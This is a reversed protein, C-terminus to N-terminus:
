KTEPHTKQDFKKIANVISKAIKKQRKDSILQNHETLNSLFGLEILIAPMKTDALVRFPARKVSGDPANVNRDKANLETVLVSQTIKAADWSFRESGRKHLSSEIFNIVDIEEEENERVALKAAQEDSPQLDFIYSEMGFIKQNTHANCHISVFLTQDPPYANAIQVREPLSVYRDTDRTLHVAYKSKKLEQYLKLSIALTVTKEKTKWPSICGTDRGGHGPDIVVTKLKYSPKAAVPGAWIYMHPGWVALSLIIKWFVLHLFQPKNRVLILFVAPM